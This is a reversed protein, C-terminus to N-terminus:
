TYENGGEGGTECVAQKKEEAETEKDSTRLSQKSM